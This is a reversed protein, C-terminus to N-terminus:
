RMYEVGVPLIRHRLKKKEYWYRHLPLCLTEGERRAHFASHVYDWASTWRSEMTAGHCTLASLTALAPVDTPNLRLGLFLMAYATSFDGESKALVGLRVIPAYAQLQVSMAQQFFERARPVDGRKKAILGQCVLAKSLWPMAAFSRELLQEAEDFRGSPALKRQVISVYGTPDLDGCQQWVRASRLLRDALVVDYAGRSADLRERLLRRERKSIRESSIRTGPALPVDVQLRLAGDPERIEDFTLCGSPFEGHHSGEDGHSRLLLIPRPYTPADPVVILSLLCSDQAPTRLKREEDREQAARIAALAALELREELSVRSVIRELRKRLDKPVTLVKKPEQEKGRAISAGADPDLLRWIKEAVQSCRHRPPLTAVIEKCIEGYVRTLSERHIREVRRGMVEILPATEPCIPNDWILRLIVILTEGMWDIPEVFGKDICHSITELMHVYVRILAENVLGNWRYRSMSGLGAVVAEHFARHAVLGPCSMPPGEAVDSLERCLLVRSQRLAALLHVVDAPNPNKAKTVSEVLTVTGARVEDKRCAAMADRLRIWARGGEASAHGDAEDFFDQELDWHLFSDFRMRGEIQPLTKAGATGEARLIGPSHLILSLIATLGIVRPLAFKGFSLGM